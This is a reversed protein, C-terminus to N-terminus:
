CGGVIAGDHVFRKLLDRYKPLEELNKDEYIRHLLDSQANDHPSLVVYRGCDFFAYYHQFMLYLVIKQLAATWQAKDAKVNPTDYISQYSKCIELFNTEHAYYRIMQQYFRLKLDQCDAENLIKRNIKNSMIQARIFDKNDLCLRMQELLFDVKERKEM